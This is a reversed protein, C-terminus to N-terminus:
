QYTNEKAETKLTQLLVVDASKKVEALRLIYDTIQQMPKRLREVDMIIYGATVDGGTSHNVLRKIAYASVDLSEAVSIFTRRLDHITFHVGSEKRVSLIIRRPDNIHGEHGTSEFVKSGAAYLCRRNLIDRIYDSMPLTLPGGNKTKHITFTGEKFDVDAVGLAAAERRRLGTLLVFLLYDGAVHAFIDKRKYLSRVAKFWPKIDTRKIKNDRRTEKNWVRTHSLRKVPNDPFLGKGKADEYKGDAFNFLARLVRMAKNASTKSFQTLQQHKKEVMDRTIEAMPKKLWEVLHKDMVTQYNSKTNHSLNHGRVKIYDCFVEELTVGKIRKQRKEKVPDAGKNMEAILNQAKERAQEVTWSGGGFRGITAYKTKGNLKRILVFSKTGSESVSLQLGTVSKSGGADRYWDKKWDTPAALGELAKKTFNLPTAM